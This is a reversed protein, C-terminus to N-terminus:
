SPKGGGGGGGGGEWTFSSSLNIHALHSPVQLNYFHFAGKRSESCGEAGWSYPFSAYIMLFSNIDSHFNMSWLGLSKGPAKLKEQLARPQTPKPKFKPANLYNAESESICLEMISCHWVMGHWAILLYSSESGQGWALFIAKSLM